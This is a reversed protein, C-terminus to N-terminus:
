TPISLQLRRCLASRRATKLILLKPNLDVQRTEASHGEIMVTQQDDVQRAASAGGVTPRDQLTQQRARPM